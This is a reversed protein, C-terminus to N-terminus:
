SHYNETHYKIIRISHDLRYYAKPCYLSILFIFMQRIEGCYCQPCEALKTM